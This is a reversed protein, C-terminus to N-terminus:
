LPSASPSPGGLSIGYGGWRPQVAAVGPVPSDLWEKIEAGAEKATRRLYVLLPGREGDSPNEPEGRMLRVKEGVFTCRSADEVRDTNELAGGYELREYTADVACGTMVWDGKLAAVSNKGLNFNQIMEVTQM